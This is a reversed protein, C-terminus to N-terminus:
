IARQICDPLAECVSFVSGPLIICDFTMLSEVDPIKNDEIQLVKWEDNRFLNGIFLGVSNV